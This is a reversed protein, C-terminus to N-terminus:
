RVVPTAQPQKKKEHKMPHFSILGLFGTEFAYGHSVSKKNEANQRVFDSRSM